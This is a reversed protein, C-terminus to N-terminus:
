GVDKFWCPPLAFDDFKNMNRCDLKHPFEIPNSRMSIRDKRLFTFEMIPPILYKGYQVPRLGNNPHIHVIEFLKRLKLFTLTILESGLRDCLGDLRHFEIILIRFKSLLEDSTNYLVGYEAGEIDMQLIFDTKNPANRSVWNELTMHIADNRPDLYKREFHILPDDIPPGDVSYDALFCEIGRRVLDFEFTATDSVGPSFCIDINELDDPVLYGGDRGAGLRILPHNTAVPKVIQFFDQLLEFDSASTIRLNRTLFLSQLLPKALPSLIM